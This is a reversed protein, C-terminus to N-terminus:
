LKRLTQTWRQDGTYMGLYETMFGKSNSGWYGEQLSPRMNSWFIELDDNVFIFGGLPFDHDNNATRMAEILNM